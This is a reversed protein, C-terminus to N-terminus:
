YGCVIEGYHEADVGHVNLNRAHIEITGFLKRLEEVVKSNKVPDLALLVDINGSIVVQPDTLNLGKICDAAKGILSKRLYDFKMVDDLSDHKGVMSELDLCNGDFRELEIKPLNALKSTLPMHSKEDLGAHCGTKTFGGYSWLWQDNLLITKPISMEFESVGFIEDEIEESDKVLPLM